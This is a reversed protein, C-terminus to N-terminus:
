NSKFSFCEGSNINATWEQNFDEYLGEKLFTRENGIGKQFWVFGFGVKCLVGEAEIGLLM